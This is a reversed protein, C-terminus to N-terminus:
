MQTPTSIVPSYVLSQVTQDPPFHFPTAYHHNSRMSPTKKVSVSSRSRPQHIRDQSPHNFGSKSSTIHHRPQSERVQITSLRSLCFSISHHSRINKTKEYATCNNVELVKDWSSSDNGTVGDEGEPKAMKKYCKVKIIVYRM